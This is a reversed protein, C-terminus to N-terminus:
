KNSTKGNIIQKIAFYFVMIILICCFAVFPVLLSLLGRIGKLKLGYYFIPIIFLFVWIYLIHKTIQLKLKHKPILKRLGEHKFFTELYDKIRDM